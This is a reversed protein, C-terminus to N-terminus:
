QNVLSEMTKRLSFLKISEIKQRRRKQTDLRYVPSNNTIAHQIDKFSHMDEFVHNLPIEQVYGYGHDYGRAEIITHPIDTSAVVMVHGRMWLIDGPRVTEDANVPIMNDAITSTNKYHYPLGVLQAARLILGSCDIGGKTHPNYNTSTYLISTGGWVYPIKKPRTHTWQRLINIMHKIKKVISDKRIGLIAHTKPIHITEIRLKKINFAAVIYSLNNSILNNPMLRFRTGPSFTYQTVTDYWPKTLIIITTDYWRDPTEKYTVSHPFYNDDIGLEHLRTCPILASSLTWFQINKIQKEGSVYANDISICAQHNKESTVEVTENFLAQHLRKCAKDENHYPITKYHTIIDQESGTFPACVLDIVPKIVIAKYCISASPILHIALLLSFLIPYSLQLIM